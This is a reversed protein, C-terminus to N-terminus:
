AKRGARRRSKGGQETVQEIVVAIAIALLAIWPLNDLIAYSMGSMWGPTICTSWSYRSPRSTESVCM